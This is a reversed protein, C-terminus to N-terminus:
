ATTEPADLDHILRHCTECVAVLDFLMERRWRRYHLHHVQTAQRQGCGECRYGARRLVAARRRAWQATRLYRDHEARWADHRQASTM